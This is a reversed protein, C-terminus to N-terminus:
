WSLAEAILQRGSGQGPCFCWATGSNCVFVAGSMRSRRVLHLHTTAKVNRDSLWVVVVGGCGGTWGVLFWLYGSFTVSYKNRRYHASVNTKPNGPRLATVTSIQTRSCPATYNHRHTGVPEKSVQYVQLMSSWTVDKFVTIKLFVIRNKGIKLIFM